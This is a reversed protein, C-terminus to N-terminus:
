AREVAANQNEIPYADVNVFENPNVGSDGDNYKAADEEYSFSALSQNAPESSSFSNNPEDLSSVVTQTQQNCATLSLILVCALVVYRCKKM